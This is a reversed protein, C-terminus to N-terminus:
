TTTAHQYTSPLRKVYLIILVTSKIIEPKIHNYQTSSFRMLEHFLINLKLPPSTVYM